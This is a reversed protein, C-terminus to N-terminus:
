AFLAGDSERFIRATNGGPTIFGDGGADFAGLSTVVIDQPGVTFIEGFSWSGNRYPNPDHVETFISAKAEQVGISLLLACVCRLRHVFCNMDRRKGQGASGSSGVLRPGSHSLIARGSFRQMGYVPPFRLGRMRLVKRAFYFPRM